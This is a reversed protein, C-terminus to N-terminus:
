ASSTFRDSGFWEYWRLVDPDDVSAINAAKELRTGRLLKKIPAEIFPRRDLAAVWLRLHDSGRAAVAGCGAEADPDVGSGAEAATM